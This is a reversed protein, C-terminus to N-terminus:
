AIGYILIQGADFSQAVSWDWTITTEASVNGFSGGYISPGTDDDSDAVVSSYVGTTVHVTTLGNLTDSSASDIPGTVKHWGGSGFRMNLYSTSAASNVSVGNYYIELKTYGSFNLTSSTVTTGSTTAVTALLTMSSPTSVSAIEADVYAKVSQQSPVATASDSAMNDEDKFDLQSFTDVGTSYPIKNAGTSLGALATLTNDSAQAGIETRVAAATTDKFIAIGVSGGGLNTLATDASAVDSLNNAALMDGTGAGSSGKSAFLEWKTASLDTSFTGSTHDELCIYVNGDERVIDNVIYATATVWGGKWDPLATTPVVQQGRLYLRTSYVDGANTIDQSNMDLDSNMPNPTSGDRSVTNNFANVIASFNDNLATTSYYGSTVTTLTPAKAM